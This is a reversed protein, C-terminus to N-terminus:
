LQVALSGDHGIAPVILSVQARSGRPPELAETERLNVMVDSSLGVPQRRTKRTLALVGMNRYDAIEDAAVDRRGADVRSDGVGLAQDSRTPPVLTDHDVVLPHDEAPDSQVLEPIVPLCRGLTHHLLPGRCESRAHADMLHELVHPSAPLHAIGEDRIWLSAQKAHNAAVIEFCRDVFQVSVRFCMVVLFAFLRHFAGAAIRFESPGSVEGVYSAPHAVSVPVAAVAGPHKRALQEILIPREGLGARAM